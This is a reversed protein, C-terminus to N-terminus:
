SSKNVIEIIKKALKVREKFDELAVFENLSAHGPTPIFFVLNDKEDVVGLNSEIRLKM